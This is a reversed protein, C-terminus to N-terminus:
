EEEKLSSDCECYEIAEECGGCIDDDEDEDQSSSVQNRILTTNENPETIIGRVLYRCVRMKSNNYDTPIAVVDAPDIEVELMVDGCFGSAYDYNAAHLGFSCTQNPDENVENRPMECVSGPNNVFTKSHSDRLVGDLCRTVKKYAIFNGDETIPHNNYELFGFLQNVSRFSPNNSLKKAFAVLPEFPLGENCFDQIKQGLQMPVKTAGVFVEGDKVTFLGKSAREIMKPKSILTPVDDFRKERLALLVDDYAKDGKLVCHTQGEFNVTISNATIM